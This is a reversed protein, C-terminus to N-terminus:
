QENKKTNMKEVNGRLIELGLEYMSGCILREERKQVVKEGELRDIKEQKEKLKQKLNQLAM